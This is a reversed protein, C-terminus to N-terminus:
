FNIKMNLGIGATLGFKKNILDYGGTVQLGMSFLERKAIAKEVTQTITKEKAQAWIDFRLDPHFPLPQKATIKLSLLSDQYVTDRSATYNYSKTTDKGQRKLESIAALKAVEWLSDLNVQRDLLIYEKEPRVTEHIAKYVTVTDTKTQTTIKEDPWFKKTLFVALILFIVFLATQIYKM